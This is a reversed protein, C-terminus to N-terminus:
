EWGDSTQRIVRNLVQGESKDRPGIRQSKITYAKAINEEFGNLDEHAGASCYDDGHVLLWIDRNNIGFCQHFDLVEESVM